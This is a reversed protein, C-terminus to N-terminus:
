REPMNLDLPPNAPDLEMLEIGDWEPDGTLHATDAIKRAESDTRTTVDATHPLVEGGLARQANFDHATPSRRQQRAQAREQALEQM